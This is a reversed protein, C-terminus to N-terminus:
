PYSKIPRGGSSVFELQSGSLEARKNPARDVFLKPTEIPVDFRLNKGNNGENIHDTVQEIADLRKCISNITQETTTPAAAGALLAFATFSACAINCATVFKTSSNM